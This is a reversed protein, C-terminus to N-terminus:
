QERYNEINYYEIEHFAFYINTEIHMVSAYYYHILSLNYLVMM